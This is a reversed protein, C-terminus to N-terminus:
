TKQRRLLSEFEVASIAPSYLYGQYSHCLQNKLFTLQEKTEVGEALVNLKLTNAMAIITAAIIMDEQSAPIDDVFSKDIKLVDVPYKKLYSLSSYGTGFDDIAIRVGMKRLAKFIAIAEEEREMLASETLELELLAPRYGSQKLTQTVIAVIDSHLFQHASLNVALSIDPLGADQWIRGQRCTEALVWNGLDVILGTSEAIGIFHGPYVLGKKPHQWRVLAEAGIIQQSAIDLQPQYFVRLENNLLARRLESELAIRGRVTETLAHDYFKFKGRGETKAKYLSTDAHQLLEQATGGHIPFLCIGVSSGIRVEVNSSLRWPRGLTQIIENAIRAADDARNIDDLLITFEDGGLRCVTDIGRFRSKLKQAVLQLLEDGAAHGFSDNVDKFHDLDLMLLAFLSDDRKAREVCHELRIFLLARNPLQTLVDYHALKELQAENRKRETIETFYITLGKKSPYVRNEYWQDWPAYHQEFIVVQQTEIARHYEHYFPQGIGEPYEEWINKGLLDEPKKRQLMVAARKNLYDYCWHSDLSVIGDNVREFAASLIDRAQQAEVHALNAEELLRQQEIEAIKRESIDTCTAARFLRKGSNSKVVVVQSECPFKKGDKRIHISDYIVKDQETLTHIYQPLQGKSEPAFLEILAMGIMEERSYGHMEAFATNVYSLRNTECDVIARGWGAHDFVTEFSILQHDDILDPEVLILQQWQAKGDIVINIAEDQLDDSFANDLISYLNLLLCCNRELIVPIVAYSRWGGTKNLQDWIDPKNLNDNYHNWIPALQDLAKFMVCNQTLSEKETLETIQHKFDPFSGASACFEVKNEPQNHLGVWAFQLSPLNLLQDCIQQCISHGKGDGNILQKYSQSLILTM